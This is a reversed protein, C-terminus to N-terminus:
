YESRAGARNGFGQAASRVANVQSSDVVSNLRAHIEEPVGVAVPQLFGLDGGVAAVSAVNGHEDLERARAHAVRARTKRQM